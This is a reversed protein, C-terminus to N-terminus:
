NCNNPGISRSEICVYNLNCLANFHLLCKNRNNANLPMIKLLKETNEISRFIDDNWLSTLSIHWIHPPANSYTFRVWNAQQNPNLIIMVVARPRFTTIKEESKCQMCLACRVVNLNTSRICSASIYWLKLVSIFSEM